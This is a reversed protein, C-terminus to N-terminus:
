GHFVESVELTDDPPLNFYEIKGQTNRDIFDYASRRIRQWFWSEPGSKILEKGVLFSPKEDPAMRLGRKRARNVAAVADISREAYGYSIVLRYIGAVADITRFVIREEDAIFPASASMATLCVINMPLSNLRRACVTLVNPVDEDANGVFVITGGTRHMQKVGQRLETLSLLEDRLYDNVENTTSFHTYMIAFFSLAILLVVWGGSAVKKITASFLILDFTLFISGFLIVRWLSYSWTYRLVLMFFTATIIM